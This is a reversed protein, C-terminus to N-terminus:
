NIYCQRDTAQVRLIHKNIRKLLAIESMYLLPYIIDDTHRLM